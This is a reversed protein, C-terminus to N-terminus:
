LRKRKRLFPRLFLVRLPAKREEKKKVAFFVIQLVSLPGYRQDDTENNQESNTYKEAHYARRKM